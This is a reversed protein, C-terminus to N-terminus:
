SSGQVDDLTASATTPDADLTSIWRAAAVSRAALVAEAARLDRPTTIKTNEVDGPVLIVEAGALEALTADDTADRGDAHAARLVDAEFAQPTQVAVVEARDLEEGDRRRLTDAIDVVPVAAEGGDRIADIMSRFLATTALPRAGDHVLIIEADDPVAALGARVSDSRTVGGAVVVDAGAIHEARRDAPVVVVVRSVASAVSVALDIVRSPGLPEFQKAAGFRRGSGGAVVITWVENGISAGVPQQPPHITTM